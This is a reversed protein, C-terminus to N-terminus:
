FAILCAMSVSHDERLWDRWNYHRNPKRQVKRIVGSGLWALRTLYSDPKTWQLDVRWVTPPRFEASSVIKYFEEMQTFAPLKKRSELIKKYNDSYRQRTFPNTDGDLNEKAKAARVTRPICGDFPDTYAAMSPTKLHALYPNEKPTNSM